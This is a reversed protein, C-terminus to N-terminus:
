RRGALASGRGAETAMGAAGEIITLLTDVEEEGENQEQGEV